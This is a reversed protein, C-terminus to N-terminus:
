MFDLPMTFEIQHSEPLQNVPEPLDDYKLLRSSYVADKHIGVNSQTGESLLKRRLEDSEQFEEKNLDKLCWGDMSINFIDDISPRNSPNADWCRCILDSYCKPILDSIPPRHGKCIDMALHVDHARGSFPLQGTSIEWMIMGFSYIDSAQTYKEGRLVEPAMYPIVGYTGKEISAESKCLGLDGIFVVLSTINELPCQDHILINGSHFDRHVLGALHITKLGSAVDALIPIKEKWLMDRGPKTGLFNRLSSKDAYSFVMLYEETEPNRTIGYHRLICHGHVTDKNKMAEIYGIIETFFGDNIEQSNEFTKLVVPENSDKSWDQKSEDWEKIPGDIWVAKYVKGFGGRALFKIEKFHQYPIWELVLYLETAELQTYQIFEDITKNGSTWNAFKKQFRKSQCNQCWNYYSNLFGCESCITKGKM